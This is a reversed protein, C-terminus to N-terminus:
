RLEGLHGHLRMLKLCTECTVKAKNRHTEVSLPAGCFADRNLKAWHTKYKRKKTRSPEKPGCESTFNGAEAGAVERLLNAATKVTPAYLNIGIPNRRKMETHIADVTEAMQAWTMKTFNM